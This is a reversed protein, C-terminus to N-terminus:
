VQHSLIVLGTNLVMQQKKVTMEVDQCQISNSVIRITSVNLVYKMLNIISDRKMM